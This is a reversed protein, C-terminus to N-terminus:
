YVSDETMSIHSLPIAPRLPEAGMGGSACPTKGSQGKLGASIFPALLLAALALIGRRIM